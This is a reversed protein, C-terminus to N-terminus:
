DFLGTEFLIMEGRLVNFLRPLADIRTRRLFHGLQTAQWNSRIQGSRQATTRFSLMEFSRGGVIRTRREFVPGPSDLRIAVATILMLPMALALIACAFLVDGYRRM